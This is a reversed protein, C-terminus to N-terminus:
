RIIIKRQIKEGASTIRLVYVGKLYRPLTICINKQCITIPKVYVRRGSLNFIEMFEPSRNLSTIHLLYNNIFIQSFESKLGLPLDTQVNVAEFEVAGICPPSNRLVGRQDVTIIDMITGPVIKSDTELFYAEDQQFYIGFPIKIPWSNLMTDRYGIASRIGTAFAKSAVAAPYMTKTPGGNDNLTPEDPGFVQKLTIGTQCSQMSTPKINGFISNVGRSESFSTIFDHNNDSSNGIIITNLCFFNKFNNFVGGGYAEVHRDNWSYTSAYTQCENLTITSNQLTLSGTNNFIGAGKSCCIVGVISSGSTGLSYAINGTITSNLAFVRGSENYIGGGSASYTYDKLYNGPNYIDRAGAQALNDKLTSNQIFVIGSNNFIGGGYIDYEGSPTFSPLDKHEEIFNASDNAITSANIACYGEWNCIGGGSNKSSNFSLECTDIKLIGNGNYIGGGYGDATNNHIIKCHSLACSGHSNYLAGGSGYTYTSNEYLSDNRMSLIGFNNFIAGGGGNNVMNSNLVSNTILVNGSDIYVAGGGRKTSYGGSFLCNDVTVDSGQGSIRLIAGCSDQSNIIILNKLVVKGGLITLIRSKCRQRLICRKDSSINRGDIVLDKSITISGCLVITDNDSLNFVVTDGATAATVMELLSETDNDANATVTLRAAHSPVMLITIMLIFSYVYQLLGTSMM